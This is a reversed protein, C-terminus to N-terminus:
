IMTRLVSLYPSFAYPEADCTTRLFSSSVCLLPNFNAKPSNTIQRVSFIRHSALRVVRASIRSNFLSFVVRRIMVFGLCGMRGKKTSGFLVSSYAYLVAVGSGRNTLADSVNPFNCISGCLQFNVRSIVTPLQTSQQKLLFNVFFNLLIVYLNSLFAFIKTMKYTKNTIKNFKKTFESNFCCFV